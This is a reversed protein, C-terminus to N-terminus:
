LPRNINQFLIDPGGTAITRWSSGPDAGVVGGGIINTGNMEWVAVQGGASQWLIDSRGDGDFDGTGVAYWSPGPNVGVIGGGTINTGSMEWIAIQGSATNQFLIDSDGAGTFDGTGIAKWGPGPNAGVIGGGALSLGNMEWIAIQGSVNQFLVDSDGAGGTFDGTGIANWSPGPAADVIGGGIVNAGNMEWLAVHGDANQWLIDSHGDADFDGTGIASWAPGPNAGVNGGGIVTTGDTEWIAAQGNANQWLIDSLGNGYFDGAGIASWSPGPNAGVKGGGAVDTGNMAWVVAQGPNLPAGAVDFGIANMESLDTASLQLVQDYDGYGFSDASVSSAWDGIDSVTDYPYNQGTSGGDLSFYAAQGGYTALAGPSAYRFLDMVTYQGVGLSGTPYSAIRGMAHTLEHEAVGILDVDGPEARNAPDYTFTYAPNFGVAGDVETGTSALLGWAKEQAPSVYIEAGNWPNSPLNALATADAISNSEQYATTLDAKLQAYTLDVGGITGGLAEDGGSVPYTGNDDEGWGVLINVTIPDSLLSDLADAAYTVATEFGSPAGAVSSDWILNINM